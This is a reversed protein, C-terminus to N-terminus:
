QALQEITKSDELTKSLDDTSGSMALFAESVMSM